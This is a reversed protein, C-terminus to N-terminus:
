IQIWITGDSATSPESMLLTEIDSVAIERTDDDRTDDPPHGRTLSISGTPENSLAAIVDIWTGEARVRARLREGSKLTMEVEAM